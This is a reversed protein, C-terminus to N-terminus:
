QRYLSKPGHFIVKGPGSPFDVSPENPSNVTIEIIFTDPICLVTSCHRQSDFNQSDIKFTGNTVTTKIKSIDSNGYYKISVSYNDATQFRLDTGDTDNINTFPQLSRTITHINANYRDRVHPVTDAALAGGAALGISLLGILIAMGFLITFVAILAAIAMGIILLLHERFGIPFINDQLLQGNHFIMYMAATILAFLAALGALIFGIGVIRLLVRFLTNIPGAISSNVRRAAGKVDAREVVEKLSDVTVPKGAMQLKESSTKAEPVLLWLAIYLLIGGGWAISGIVFLIRVLLVDVGFYKALGAAVGALMADDTDRFLRKSDAPEDALADDGNEKFDKPDGLQKKLYDVDKILIVKEGSVGREALLEAMRLEVEDIVDKDGVQKTIADIYDHLAKHAAASINFAQRGLHIKTVENM